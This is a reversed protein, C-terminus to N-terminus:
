PAQALSRAGAASVAPEWAGARASKEIYGVAHGRELERAWTAPDDMGMLLVSTRPSAQRAMPLAALRGSGLIAPDLLLVDARERKLARILATRDTPCAVVEIAPERGLLSAIAEAMSASPDAILVSTM